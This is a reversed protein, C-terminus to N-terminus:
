RPVPWTGALCDPLGREPLAVSLIALGCYLGCYLGCFLEFPVGSLANHSLLLPGFLPLWLPSWAVLARWFVRM